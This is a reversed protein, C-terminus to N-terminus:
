RTNPVEELGKKGGKRRNEGRGAGRRSASRRKSRGCGCGVDVAPPARAASEEAGSVGLYNRDNGAGIDCIDGSPVHPDGGGGIGAAVIGSGGDVDSVGVGTAQSDDKHAEQNSPSATPAIKPHEQDNTNAGFTNTNTATAVANGGTGKGEFGARQVGALPLQKSSGRKYKPSRAPQTGSSEFLPDIQVVITRLKDSLDVGDASSDVDEDDDHEEDEEHGGDEATVGAGTKTPTEPEGDARARAAAVATAVSPEGAKAAAGSGAALKSSQTSTAAPQQKQNHSRRTAKANTAIASEVEERRVKESFHISNEDTYVHKKKLIASLLQLSLFFASLLVFRVPFFFVFDRFRFLPTYHSSLSFRLDLSRTLSSTAVFAGLESPQVYVQSVCYLLVLGM